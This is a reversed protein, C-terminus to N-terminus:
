ASTAEASMLEERWARLQPRLRSLRKEIVAKGLGTAAIMEQTSCGEAYRLVFLRYTEAPVEAKLRDLLRGLLDRAAARAELGSTSRRGEAHRALTDDATATETTPNRSRISLASLTRREAVLGVFNRLSAGRAPDWRRLEKAGDRLLHVLVDQVGDRVAEDVDFRPPIGAARLLTRAVRAQIVPLLHQALRRAAAADGALTRELLQRVEESM